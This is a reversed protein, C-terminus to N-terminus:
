SSTPKAEAAEDKADAEKADADKAADVKADEKAEFEADKAFTWDLAEAHEVRSLLRRSAAPAAAAADGTISTSDTAAAAKDDSSAAKGDDKSDSSKDDDSAAAKDADRGDGLGDTTKDFDMNADAKVSVQGNDASASALRGGSSDASSSDGDADGSSVKADSASIAEGLLRPIPRAATVATACFTLALLVAIMSAAVTRSSAM